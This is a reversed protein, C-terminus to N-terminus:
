ADKNKCYNLSFKNPKYGKIAFIVWSAALILSLVDFLSSKYDKKGSEFSGYFIFLL